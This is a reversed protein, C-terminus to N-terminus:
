EAREPPILGSPITQGRPVAGAVRTGPLWTFPEAPVTGIAELEVVRAASDYAATVHVRIKTTTVAAFTFQRWVYLNSTVTALAVWASGNWYEVTFDKLGFSSVNTTTTLDPETASGYTIVNIETLTYSRDFDVQIWQPTAPLQSHSGWGGNSGWDSTTRNGNIAGSAAYGGLATSASATGGNAAAAVNVSM